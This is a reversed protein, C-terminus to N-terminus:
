YFSKRTTIVNHCVFFLDRRRDKDHKPADNCPISFSVLAINEEKLKYSEVVSENAYLM